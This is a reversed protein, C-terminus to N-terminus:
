KLLLVKPQQKVMATTVPTQHKAWLSLLYQYVKKPGEAKYWAMMEPNMGTDSGPPIVVKPKLLVFGILNRLIQCIEGNVIYCAPVGAKKGHVRMHYLSTLPMVKIENLKAPFERNISFQFAHNYGIRGKAIFGPVNLLEFVFTKYAGDSYKESISVKFHGNQWVDGNQRLPPLLWNHSQYLEKLEEGFFRAIDSKVRINLLETNLM